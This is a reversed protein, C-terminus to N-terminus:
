ITQDPITPVLMQARLNAMAQAIRGTGAEGITTAWVQAATSPDTTICDLPGQVPAQQGPQSPSTPLATMFRATYSSMQTTVGVYLETTPFSFTFPPSLPDTFTGAINVLPDGFAAIKQKDTADSADGVFRAQLNVSIIGNAQIVVAHVQM